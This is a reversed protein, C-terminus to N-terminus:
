SKQGLCESYFTQGLCVSYFTAGCFDCSCGRDTRGQFTPPITTNESQCEPDLIILFYSQFIVSDMVGCGSADKLNNGFYDLWKSTEFFFLTGSSSPFLFGIM